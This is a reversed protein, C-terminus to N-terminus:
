IVFNIPEDFDKNTRVKVESKHYVISNAPVSNTLWVNGGIITDKGITTKGGLITSGSYIVVNDEITPHRKTQGEEKLVVLAGLTVGQYIKVNNGIICTEGIVVGTGHDIFFYEGVTAGPHIDIGTVSHAHEAIIRPVLNVGLEHLEHAIRHVCIAFFGPYAIVVEQISKAAPDFRYFAEADRQLKGYILYLRDFFDVIIKTHDKIILPAILNELLLELKKLELAVDHQESRIPFLLNILKEVWIISEVKSPLEIKAILHKQYIDLILKEAKM